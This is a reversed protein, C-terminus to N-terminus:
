GASRSCAVSPCDAMSAPAVCTKRAGAEAGTCTCPMTVPDAVGEETRAGTAITGILGGAAREPGEAVVDTAVTRIPGAAREEEGVEPVLTIGCGEDIAWGAGGTPVIDPPNAEGRRRLLRWVTEASPEEGVFSCASAFAILWWAELFKSEMGPVEETLDNRVKGSVRM